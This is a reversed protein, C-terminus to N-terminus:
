GPGWVSPHSPAHPRSRGAEAVATSVRAGQKPSPGHAPWASGVPPRRHPGQSGWCPNHAAVLNRAQEPGWVGLSGAPGGCPTGGPGALPGDRAAGRSAPPHHPLFPRTALFQHLVGPLLWSRFCGPSPSGPSEEGESSKQLLVKNQCLGFVFLLDPTILLTATWKELAGFM